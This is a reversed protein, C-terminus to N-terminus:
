KILACRGSYGTTTVHMQLASDNVRSIRTYINADLNCRLGSGAQKFETMPLITSAIIITGQILELCVFRYNNINDGQPLPLQVWTASSTNGLM